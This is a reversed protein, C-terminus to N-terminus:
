WMLFKGPFAVDIAQLLKNEPIMFMKVVDAILIM